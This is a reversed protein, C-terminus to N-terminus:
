FYVYIYQSLQQIRPGNTAAWTPSLQLVRPCEEPLTRRFILMQPITYRISHTCDIYGPTYNLMSM